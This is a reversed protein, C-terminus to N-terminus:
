DTENSDGWADSVASGLAEVFKEIDAKGSNEKATEIKMKTEILKAKKEQVRTLSEEIQQIMTLNSENLITQTDVAKGNVIGSTDTISATYFDKERLKEIRQLMRRERITILKLEEEVLALPDLNVKEVLEKEDEKLTDMWITEYEGTKVGNKNGKLNEPKPGTCKGGHIRCRGNAMPINRCPENSKRRKAGCVKTHGNMKTM